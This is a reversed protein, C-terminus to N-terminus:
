NIVFPNVDPTFNLDVNGPNVQNYTSTTTTPAHTYTGPLPKADPFKGPATGPTVTIETANSKKAIVAVGVLAALGGLIYATKM